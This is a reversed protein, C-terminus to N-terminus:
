DGAVGTPVPSRGLDDRGPAPSPAVVEIIAAGALADAAIADADRVFDTWFGPRSSGGQMFWRTHETPIGLVYLGAAPEGSRGIPHYPSGTVAVGGTEFTGNCYGTWIGRARLATTFPSPDRHLAPIPIRADVLTDVEVDSGAVQPSSVVFRGRDADAAFSTAPGAIRLVGAEVLAVFQYLRIRPPGAALFAVRHQYWGLFEDRHSRPTLGGFDVLERILGRTDRLVDLAAKLPSGVNGDEAEVLDQRLHGLLAAHFGDPDRFSRGRFPRALRDLDIRPLDPAGHAAAIAPVDPLGSRAAAVVADRFAAGAEPGAARRLATARYVLEVEAILWPLVDAGFEVAGHPKGNRAREVTCLVTTYRHNHHKQNRGRAPVPMGGRSGAVIVPEEGSRHYTLGGRGDDTFRGGRGLTFAALVDYFSLGLGIVGVASGAPVADLPMDAASDGVLYRLGPHAGAFEALGAEPGFPEPTAHGTVLVVRDAVLQENGVLTLRYRDGEPELDIVRDLVERLRVSAPLAARISALVMGMYRGYRARSAFSGPGPFDPDDVSWWQALSPGAGPRVPGDDPPGSFASVEEAITNMLFWDPQDTRWIRGCGLQVDDIVCLEIPRRGLPEVPPDALRAALRELVSLGRPGSGVVVIRYPAAAM